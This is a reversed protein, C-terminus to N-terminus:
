GCAASMGANREDRRQGNRGSSARSGTDSGAGSWSTEDPGARSATLPRASAASVDGSRCVAASRAEAPNGVSDSCDSGREAWDSLWGCDCGDPGGIDSRCGPMWGIRGSGAAGSGDNGGRSTCRNAAGAGGTAATIGGM